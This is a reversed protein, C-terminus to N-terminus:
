RPVRARLQALYAQVTPDSPAQRALIELHDLAERDRGADALALALNLRAAVHEPALGVARELM